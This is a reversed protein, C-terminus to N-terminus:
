RTSLFNSIAETALELAEFVVQARFANRDLDPFSVFRTLTHDPTCVAIWAVGVPEDLSSAPGAWGTTAIACDTSFLRQAQEAMETACERSVVGFQKLTEASVGLVEQKIQESYATIGGAYFLSAGPLDCITSSLLGATLSEACSLSISNNRLLAALESSLQRVKKSEM